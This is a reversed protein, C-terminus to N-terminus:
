YRTGDTRKALRAPDSPASGSPAVGNSSHLFSVHSTDIEREMGQAWNTRQLWKTVHSYGAPARVWELQPLEPPQKERPGMYIWAVGDAERTPYALTPVFEKFQREAIENPM